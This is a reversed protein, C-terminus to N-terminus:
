IFSSIYAIEEESVCPNMPLSIIEQSIKNAIKFDKEKSDLYKFCPQKHLPIPYHIGFPINANKFKQILNKRDKSLICYQAYISESNKRIHPLVVPKDKLAKNYTKAVKQRMSIQDQYYKLKVLLIGAQINDMRAGLGIYEHLYKEKQGHIRLSKLKQNLNEDDCFIAGGDGYCGLPKAPFFSTISIHGLNGSKRDKYKAGFSQAGDEIIPINYPKAICELEDIDIPEGFLSVPIIAKTKETIAQKLLKIDLHYSSPDIDIFVPKAGLMAIMEAASIFSFTSTIVEDGSKIGLAMLSLLLASTGSSTTICFKRNVFNSLQKELMEIEEGMIFSSNLIIKNIATKIEDLYKKDAKYLNAFDIKM